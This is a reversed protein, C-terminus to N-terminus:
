SHRRNPVLHIDVGRLVVEGAHDHVGSVEGQHAVCVKQRNHTHKGFREPITKPPPTAVILEKPKNHNHKQDSVSPKQNTNSAPYTTTSPPAFASFRYLFSISCRISQFIFYSLITRSPSSSRPSSCSSSHTVGVCCVCM